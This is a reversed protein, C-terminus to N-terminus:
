RWEGNFIPPGPQLLLALFVLMSAPFIPHCGFRSRRRQLLLALFVLMSADGEELLPHFDDRTATISGPFCANFGCLPWEERYEIPLQLLLALFVLM